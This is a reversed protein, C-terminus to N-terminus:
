NQYIIHLWTVLHNYCSSWTETRYVRLLCYIIDFKALGMPAFPYLRTFKKKENGQPNIINLVKGQTEGGNMPGGKHLTQELHKGKKIPIDKLFM